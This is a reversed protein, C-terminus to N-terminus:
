LDIVCDSLPTSQCLLINDSGSGKRAGSELVTGELLRCQCFKCIGQRCSAGANLQLNDCVDLLSGSCRRWSTKKNSKKFCVTFNHDEDNNIALLHNIPLGSFIETHLREMEIGSSLLSQYGAYIFGNPGCLFFATDTSFKDLYDNLVPRGAVDFANTQIDLLLPKTFFLLFEKCSKKYAQLQKTFPLTQSNQTVHYFSVEIKQKSKIIDELIALMPTIGIGASILAVSRLESSPTFTGHPGTVEILDGVQAQQALYASMSMEPVKTPDVKVAIQYHKKNLISVLTYARVLGAQKPHQLLIHQGPKPPMVKATGVPELVLTVIDRAVYTLKKVRMTRPEHKNASLASKDFFKNFMNM